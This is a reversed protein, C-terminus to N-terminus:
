NELPKFCEKYRIFKDDMGDYSVFIRGGDKNFRCVIGTLLENRVMKSEMKSFIRGFTSFLDDLQKKPDGFMEDMPNHKEIGNEALIRDLENM